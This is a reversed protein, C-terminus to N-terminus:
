LYYLQGVGLHGMVPSSTGQLWPLYLRGELLSQQKPAVPICVWVVCFLQVWYGGIANVLGYFLWESKSSKKWNIDLIMKLSMFGNSCSELGRHYFYKSILTLPPQGSVFSKWKEFTYTCVLKRCLPHHYVKSHHGKTPSLIKLLVIKELLQTSQTCGQGIKLKFPVFVSAFTKSKKFTM